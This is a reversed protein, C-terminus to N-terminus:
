SGPEREPEPRRHCPHGSGAGHRRRGRKLLMVAFVGILIAPWVSGSAAAAWLGTVVAGVVLLGAVVAGVVLMGAAPRPWGGGLRGGGLRGGGAWGRSRGARPVGAPPEAPPLDAILEPLEDRYTVAYAAALRQEGEDLILRGEEMAARLRDAVQEREADSARVRSTHPESM